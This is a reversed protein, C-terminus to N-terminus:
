LLVTSLHHIDSGYCRNKSLFIAHYSIWFLHHLQGETARDFHKEFLDMKQHNRFKYSTSTKKIYSLITKWLAPAAYTISWEWLVQRFLQVNCSIKESSIESQELTCVKGLVIM